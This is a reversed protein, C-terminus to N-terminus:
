SGAEPAPGPAPPRHLRCYNPTSTDSGSGNGCINTEGPIADLVSVPGPERPLLGIRCHKEALETWASFIRAASIGCHRAKLSNRNSHVQTPILLYTPLFIEPQPACDRIERWGAIMCLALALATLPKEVRESALARFEEIKTQARKIKGRKRPPNRAPGALSGPCHGRASLASM